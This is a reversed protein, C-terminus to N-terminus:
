RLLGRRRGVAIAQARSHVGLKDYLSRVHARVTNTAIALASALEEYTLGAHLLALVERERRTLPRDGTSGAARAEIEPPLDAAPATGLAARVVSGAVRASLVVGRELEDLAGALRTPLDEKLLYGRAGLRLASAVTAWGAAVTLVLAPPAPRLEAALALLDLGSGDPLGLDLLAADFPEGLLLARGEAVTGVVACRWSAVSALRAAAAAFHPDDEVILLRRPERRRM